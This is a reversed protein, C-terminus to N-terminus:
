GRLARGPNRGEQDGAAHGQRDGMKVLKYQAILQEQLTPAQAGAMSALVITVFIAAAVPISSHQRM